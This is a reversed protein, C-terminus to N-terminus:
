VISNIIVRIKASGRLCFLWPCNRYEWDKDQWDANIQTWFLFNYHRNPKTLRKGKRKRRYLFDPFGRGPLNGSGLLDQDSSQGGRSGAAYLRNPSSFIALSDLFSEGFLGEAEIGFWVREWCSLFILVSKGWEVNEPGVTLNIGSHGYM